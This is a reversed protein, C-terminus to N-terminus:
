KIKKYEKCVEDMEARTMYVRQEVDVGKRLQILVSKGGVAVLIHDKLKDARAKPNIKKM